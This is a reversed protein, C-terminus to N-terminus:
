TSHCHRTWFLKKRAGQKLRESEYRRDRVFFVDRAHPEAHMKRKAYEIYDFDKAEYGQDGVGVFPTRKLMHPALLYSMDSEATDQLCSLFSDTSQAPSAGDAADSSDETQQRALKWAAQGAPENVPGAGAVTYASSGESLDLYTAAIAKNQTAPVTPNHYHSGHQAQLRQLVRAALAKQQQAVAVAATGAVATLGMHLPAVVQVNGVRSNESVACHQGMLSQLDARNNAEVDAAPCHQQAHAGASTSTVMMSLCSGQSSNGSLKGDLQQSSNTEIGAVVAQQQLLAAAAKKAKAVHQQLFQPMATAHVKFVTGVAELQSPAQQAMMTGAVARWHQWDQGPRKGINDSPSRASGPVQATNCNLAEDPTPRRHVAGAALASVAALAAAQSKSLSSIGPMSCAPKSNAVVSENASPHTTIRDLISGRSSMRTKDKVQPRSISPASLSASLSPFQVTPVQLDQQGRQPQSPQQRVAFPTASHIMTGEQTAASAAAVLPSPKKQQMAELFQLKSKVADLMQQVQEAAKSSSKDALRGDAAAGRASAATSLRKTGAAETEAISSLPCDPGSHQLSGGCEAVARMNNHLFPQQTYHLPRPSTTGATTINQLQLAPGGAAPAAIVEAALKHQMILTVPHQAHLRRLAAEARSVLRAVPAADSRLIDQSSTPSVPLQAAASTICSTLCNSGDLPQQKSQEQTSGPIPSVTDTAHSADQILAVKDRPRAQSDQLESHKSSCDAAPIVSVSQEHSIPPECTSSLDSPLGPLQQRITSPLECSVPQQCNASPAQLHKLAAARPVSAQHNISLQQLPQRHRLSSTFAVQGIQNDALKMSSSRLTNSSPGSHHCNEQGGM